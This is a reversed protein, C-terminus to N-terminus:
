PRTIFLVSHTYTYTPLRKLFPAFTLLSFKFNGSEFLVESIVRLHRVSGSVREM